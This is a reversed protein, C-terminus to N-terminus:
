SGGAGWGGGLAKILAVTALMRDSAVRLAQREVQLSTRQADDAEMRRALGNRYRADALRAAEKARALATAEHQAKQNLIRLSALRDEVEQFARLIRDQYDALSREDSNMRDAHLGILSVAPSSFLSVGVPRSYGARELLSTAEASEFGQEGTIRISPFYTATVVGRQTNRAAM